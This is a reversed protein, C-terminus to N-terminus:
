SGGASVLAQKDIADKSPSPHGTQLNQTSGAPGTQLNMAAVTNSLSTINADVVFDIWVSGNAEQVRYLVDTERQVATSQGTDSATTLQLKFVGSTKSASTRSDTGTPAVTSTSGPGVVQVWVDGLRNLRVRGSTSMQGLVFSSGGVLLLGALVLARIRFQKRM